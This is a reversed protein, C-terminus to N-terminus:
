FELQIGAKYQASIPYNAKDIGSIATGNGGVEPDYGTYKTLTLPNQAACYIRLKSIGLKAMLKTPLKYGVAVNKLRIFSGDEIWIDTSPRYNPHSKGRDLPIPSNPNQPTWQYLLDKSTGNWYAAVKTSNIIDNGYSGFWQMSFDFDKYSCSLNLGATFDPLGNGGYVRDNVDIVNDGQTTNVYILDGMKASPVLKQYEALQEATKVLGNTKYVFFSGAAYGEKIICVPDPNGLDLVASGPMYFSKNYDSMKTVININKAFTGGISWTFKGAHRYNTALELGKNNMDGINLVLTGNTGTGLTPPLMVPFLMDNKNSNYIDANFTLSNNLFALDIGFNQQVTTEWKVDANALTTQTAGLYITQNSGTGFIYDSNLVITPAYTYDAFNQNGTTGYSGRIKFSTIANALPKWFKEESVNWGVSASPFYGWRNEKAFRSSGDRRTSVSLLYKSKYDYQFRGLLGVLANNRDQNYSSKGSFANPDATGANLVKIENNLIDFRQATFSSFSYQEISFVGLATIKHGGFQKTYNLSNEGVLKDSKDSMNTIGSRNRMPVIAGTNDYVLVLPNFTVTTNNNYDVGIRGSYNFDKTFAYQLQLNANISNGNRVNTQKMVALMNSVALAENSGAAGADSITTTNQTVGPATPATAFATNIVGNPEKQQEEVRFGVSTGITWKDKKYTTNSRINTRNFGSNIVMGQQDFYNAMVNYSLEKTGGSVTVSHNQIPASKLLVVNLLDSHNNLYLPNLELPSYTELTSKNNVLEGTTYFHYLAEETTMRPIVNSGVRQTGYYSDVSVKIQGAKAQKTTILIVGGSGRTGYIASSAADKLVDITAIESPSIMPDSEYPIGDVVYLPANSGNISNLGRIQINSAAGPSGSSAQVNVGAIQGQLADGIDVSSARSLAEGSVQVVAGTVEKKKQTGYGIVVVEDLKKSDEELVIKYSAKGKEITVKEPAYGMYTVTITSDEQGSITFEGNMDTVTGITTGSIRVSAGIIESKDTASIIRGKITVKEAFTTSISAMLMLVLFLAKAHRKLTRIKNM